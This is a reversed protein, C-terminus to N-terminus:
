RYVMTDVIDVFEELSQEVCRGYSSALTLVFPILYFKRVVDSYVCCSRCDM